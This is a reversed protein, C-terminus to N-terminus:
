PCHLSVETPSAEPPVSIHREQGDGCNYRLEYSKAQGVFPDGIKQYDIQYVCKAQGNCAKTVDGIVNNQAHADVNVGYSASTVTIVGSPGQSVAASGASSATDEQSCGALLL